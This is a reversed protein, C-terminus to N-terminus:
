PENVKHPLVIPNAISFGWDEGMFSQAFEEELLAERNNYLGFVTPGSGSVRVVGAGTGALLRRIDELVPYAHLLARELDNAVHSIVDFLKAAKSCRLLNIDSLPTTLDLSLRRYTEAARIQFPPTVLAVTYDTPLDINRVIEGRGTVEAQGRSFFFPVDSGIRLGAAALDSRALDTEYLRDIAKIVAAADSSGGGLGAGVPIKKELDIHFGAERGSLRQMEAAAQYVLNSEDTPVDPHNTEITIKTDDRREITIADAMDLAQFWSFLDHYGDKRRGLVQLFLNIKAPALIFISRGPELIRGDFDAATMGSNTM